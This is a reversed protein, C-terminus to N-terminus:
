NNVMELANVRETSNELFSLFKPNRHEPYNMWNLLIKALPSAALAHWWKRAFAFRKTKDNSALRKSHDVFLEIDIVICKVSTFFLGHDLFM